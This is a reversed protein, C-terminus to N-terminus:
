TAPKSAQKEGFKKKWQSSSFFNDIEPTFKDNNMMTTSENEGNSNSKKKEGSQEKNQIKSIM